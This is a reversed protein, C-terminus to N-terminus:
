KDHGLVVDTFGGGGGARGETRSAAACVRASDGAGHLHAYSNGDTHPFLIDAGSNSRVDSSTDKLRRRRCRSAGNSTGPAEAPAEPPARVLTSRPRMCVSCVASESAPACHPVLAPLSSLLLFLFAKNQFFCLRTVCRRRGQPNSLPLLLRAPLYFRGGRPPCPGLFRGQQRGRSRLSRWLVLGWSAPNSLLWWGRPVLGRGARPPGGPQRHSAGAMGSWLRHGPRPWCVASCLVNPSVIGERAPKM